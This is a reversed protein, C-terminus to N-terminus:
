LPVGALIMALVILFVIVGTICVTILTEVRQRKGKELEKMRQIAITIDKTNYERQLRKGIPPYKAQMRQQYTPRNM